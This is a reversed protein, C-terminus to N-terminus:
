CACNGMPRSWCWTEDMNWAEAKNIKYKYIADEYGTLFFDRFQQTNVAQQREIEITEM